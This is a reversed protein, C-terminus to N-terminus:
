VHLCSIHKARRCTGPPSMAHRLLICRRDLLDLGVHNYWAALGVKAALAKAPKPRPPKGRNHQQQKNQLPPIELAQAQMPESGGPEMSIPDYDDEPAAYADVLPSAAAAPRTLKDQSIGQTDNETGQQVSTEVQTDQLQLHM